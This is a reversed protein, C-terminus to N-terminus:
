NNCRRRRTGGGRVASRKDEAELRAAAEQRKGSATLVEQGRAVPQQVVVEQVVEIEQWAGRTSRM